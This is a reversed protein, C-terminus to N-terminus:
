RGTLRLMWPVALGILLPLAVSVAPRVLAFPAGLFPIEWVLTRNLPILSWATLYAALPGPAAGSQFLAAVVPFQIYPGGPTLIGAVTAIVLGTFGSQAGLYRGVLDSPMLVTILGALVFGLVLPRWVTGLLRSTEQWAEHLKPVGGMHLAYATLAVIASLLVLESMSSRRKRRVM